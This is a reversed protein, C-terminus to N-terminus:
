THEDVFLSNVSLNAPPQQFQECQARQLDAFTSNTIVKALWTIKRIVFLKLLM